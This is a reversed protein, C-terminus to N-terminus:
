KREELVVLEHLARTAAIYLFHSDSNNAQTMPLIVMDFELGKAFQQSSLVIPQTIARSDETVIQVTNDAIQTALEQVQNANQCIIGCTQWPGKEFHRLQEKIQLHLPQSSQLRSVPKGHRDLPELMNPPLFNQAFQIIEFTSRYSKKLFFLKPQDLLGALQQLFDQEKPILTQQTDGCYIKRATFLRQLIKFQLLSYDQMEDVVLYKVSKDVTLGTFYHEIFLLPYLDSSKVIKTKLHFNKDLTALFKQYSTLSDSYALRKTFEKQIIQQQQLRKKGTFDKTLLRSAKQILRLLPVEESFINQLEVIPATLESTILPAEWLKSRQNDLFIELSLAFKESQKYRYVQSESSDPDNLVQSLEQQLSQHVTLNCNKLALEEFSLQRLDHEGLEPLVSSIYNAFVKNPSLILVNESKLNEREQYLLYALRHLAIATKGSGAVGQIIIDTTPAQRIIQNQEKQITQIITKMQQNSAKNLTENLFLDSLGEKVPYMKLLQGAQIDFQIKELNEGTFSIGNVQYHSDGTGFDYYLASIPARWDYIYQQDFDDSLGYRGIYFNDAEAEDSFRFVVKAFYPTQKQYHLKETQKTELISRSDLLKLNQQQHYVEYKDLEHRYDVTYKKISRYDAENQLLSLELNGIKKEITQVVTKLYKKETSLTM